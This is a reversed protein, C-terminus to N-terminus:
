LFLKTHIQNIDLTTENVFMQYIGKITSCLCEIKYLYAYNEM